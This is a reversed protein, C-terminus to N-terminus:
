SEPLLLKRPDPWHCRLAVVSQGDPMSHVESGALIAGAKAYFERARHNQEVVWLYLGSGSGKARLRHVVESLLRRGIGRGTLNPAVHLNEVLSGFVPNEDPYVCAFGALESGMEAVVAFMPKRSGESFKKQWDDRRDEHVRTELYDGSFTGRYAFRWSEAHLRAIAAADKATANRFIM